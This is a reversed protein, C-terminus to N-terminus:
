ALPHSLSQQASSSNASFTDSPDRKLWYVSYLSAHSVV